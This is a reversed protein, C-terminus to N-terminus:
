VSRRAPKNLGRYILDVLRPFASAMRAAVGLRRPLLVEARRQAMVTLIGDVAQDATLVSIGPPLPFHATGLRGEVMPTQVPGPLVLGVHIGEPALEQRLSHTYGNLAFKSAAYAAMYPPAVKGAVSSLNVIVSRESQRLLPLCAHIAAVTGLYNVRMLREAVEPGLLEAPGIELQGACNILVDLRGAQQRIVGTAQRLAENDTVDAELFIADLDGAAERLREASRGLLFLRDGMAALRQAASLGIGSSAGTILVARRSM